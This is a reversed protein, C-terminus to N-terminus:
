LSDFRRAASQRRRTRGPDPRSSEPTAPLNLAVHERRGPGPHGPQGPAAPGETGDGATEDIAVWVKKMPEFLEAVKQGPAYRWLPPHQGLRRQQFRRPPIDWARPPWRSTWSPSRPSHGSMSTSRWSPTWLSITPISGGFALVPRPTVALVTRKAGIGHGVPYLHAPSSFFSSFLQRGVLFLELQGTARPPEAVNPQSLGGFVYLREGRSIASAEARLGGATTGIPEQCHNLPNYVYLQHFAAGARTNPGSPVWMRGAGFVPVTVSISLDNIGQSVVPVAVHDKTKIHLDRARALTAPKQVFIRITPSFKLVEM